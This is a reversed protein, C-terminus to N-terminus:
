LQLDLSVTSQFFVLQDIQEGKKDRHGDIPQDRAEHGAVRHIKQDGPSAQASTGDALHVGIVHIGKAQIQGDPLLIEIEPNGNEVAIQTRANEQEWCGTVCTMM